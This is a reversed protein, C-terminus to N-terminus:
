ERQILAEVAIGYDMHMDYLEPVITDQDIELGTEQSKRKIEIVNGRFRGHRNNELDRGDPLTFKFRGGTGASIGM